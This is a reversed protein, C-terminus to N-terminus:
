SWLPRNRFAYARGMNTGSGDAFHFTSSSIMKQMVGHAADQPCKPYDEEGGVLKEEYHDCESCKFEFLKRM